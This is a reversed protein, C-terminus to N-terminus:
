LIVKCIEFCEIFLLTPLKTKGNTRKGNPLNQFTAKTALTGGTIQRPFEMEKYRRLGYFLYITPRRRKEHEITKLKKKQM